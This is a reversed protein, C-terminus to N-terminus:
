FGVSPAELQQLFTPTIGDGPIMYDMISVESPSQARVVDVYLWTALACVICVTFLLGQKMFHNLQLMRAM